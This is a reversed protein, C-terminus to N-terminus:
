PQGAGPRGGDVGAGVRDRRVAAAVLDRLRARDPGDALPGRRVREDRRVLWHHWVGVAVYAAMNTEGSADEVVGGVTKMPWSGDHRQTRRVWQWAREVADYRGALLLAMAAEVHNWVDTHGGVTWPIAGDREQVAEIARGSMAVQRDSLLEPPM